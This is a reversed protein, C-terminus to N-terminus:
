RIASSAARRLATRTAVIEPMAFSPHEFAFSALSALAEIEGVAEIWDGIRSGSRVRWREIALAVHATWLLLVAFPAFFQNRRADLLAVLKRLQEIEQSAPLTRDACGSTCRACASAVHVVRARHARARRRPAGARARRARRGDRDARRASAPAARLVGHRRHARDAADGARERHVAAAVGRSPDDRGAARHAVAAHDPVPRGYAAPLAIAAIREWAALRVAPMARGSSRAERERGRACGRGGRGRRGRAADVNERLELVAAQRARIEDADRSPEKLWAALRRRGARRSRSALDARVALRTRLSRLRRRVSSSRRRLGHGPRRPGALHRRHPGPRARLVRAGNEARTRARVSASTCSWWCSSRPWAPGAGRAAGLVRGRDDRRHLAAPVRLYKRERDRLAAIPSEASTSDNSTSSVCARMRHALAANRVM